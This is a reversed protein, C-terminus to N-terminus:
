SIPAALKGPKVDVLSEVVLLQGEEFGSIVYYDAQRDIIKVELALLKGDEIVFIETDSIFAERPIFMGAVSESGTFFAEVYEGELLAAGRKNNVTIYVNVSRSTQDIFDAIRVIRGNLKQGNNKELLVQSGVKIWDLEEPLVPVIVEMVDTRILSAIQMNMSAVSGVEANVNKYSGDFPAYLEYKSFNVEQQRISYYQTLINKSAVFVKEKETNIPPLEPMRANIDISSFFATWKEYEEPYDIKIDPLASSVLQLYSSRLSQLAAQMDEKFIRLLLDGKKFSQGEKLPLDGALIRGSVEASLNINGMSSVRGRYRAEPHIETKQAEQTKVFLVDQKNMDRKPEPKNRIMSASVLIALAVTALSIIVSIIKRKM